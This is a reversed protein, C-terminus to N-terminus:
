KCKSQKNNSLYLHISPHISPHHIANQWYNDFVFSINCCLNQKWNHLSMDNCLRAESIVAAQQDLHCFKSISASVYCTPPASLCSVAGPDPVKAPTLASTSSMTLPRSFDTLLSSRRPPTPQGTTPRTVDTTICSNICSSRVTAIDSWRPTGSCDCAPRVQVARRSTTLRVQRFQVCQLWRWMLTVCFRHLLWATWM